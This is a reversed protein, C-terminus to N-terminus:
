DDAEVTCNGPLYQSAASSTCQWSIANVSVANEGTNDSLATFSEGSTIGPTLTLTEGDIAQSSENGMTATIVGSQVDVQSVYQGQTDGADAPFGPATGVTAGDVTGRTNYFEAVDTKLGSALTMAESMQSRAVYNQYQPIAIAALIGIIAVVIMLEILTFGQQKHM